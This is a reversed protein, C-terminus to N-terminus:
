IIGMRAYFARVPELAPHGLARAIYARIRPLHKMYGPKGDRMNLRVFIGLIKSSRQAAMIAYAAEFGARDFGGQGQRAACYAEVVAHELEPEILVRADMGLSAVDYASPGIVADQFDILGVRDQGERDGRWIINPSHFDRLVLTKEARDLVDFAQRWAAGYTEREDATPQRGAVHPLYWDILLETEIALAGRDYAPVDHFVGGAAEIRAPWSRRHMEALLEAAAVYREPIPRGDADIVGECGLNEVLLLGADLDAAPIEPAAFGKDRLVKAIAVFPVVSEALHAIQSYPKGDRIPPGDPHRPANMLIIAERGPASVTEYARASADGILFARSAGALGAEGLFARIALSREMRDIFGEPGSILAARGAGRESLAVTVADAPLHGGAREPWEVLVVGERAAELFGLEELEDPSSLRYLDFHQAPLRAPYAQVLTFTPSPVELAPDGALARIVARALTTKGMGLDGELAIVDGPALIAAIDEGLTRSADEDALELRLSRGSM